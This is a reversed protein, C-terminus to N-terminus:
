IWLKSIEGVKEKTAEHAMLRSLSARLNQQIKEPLEPLRAISSEAEAEGVDLDFISCVQGTSQWSNAERLPKKQPRSIRCVIMIHWIQWAMPNKSELNQHTNLNITNVTHIQHDDGGNFIEGMSLLILPVNWNCPKHKEWPGLFFMVRCGVGPRWAISCSHTCCRGIGLCRSTLRTAM